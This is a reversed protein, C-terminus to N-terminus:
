PTRLSWSCIRAPSLAGTVTLGYSSSSNPSRSASSSTWFSAVSISSSSRTIRYSQASDGHAQFSRLGFEVGALRRGPVEVVVFERVEETVLHDFALLMEIGFPEHDTGVSDLRHKRHQFLLGPEVVEGTKGGLVVLIAVLRDVM